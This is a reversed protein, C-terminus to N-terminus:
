SSFTRYKEPLKYQFYPLIHPAVLSFFKDSENPNFSIFYSKDESRTAGISQEIKGTLDFKRKLFKLIELNGEYGFGYTYIHSRKCRRSGDGMYWVALSYSDFISNILYDIPFIKTKNTYFDGYMNKLHENGMTRLYYCRYQKGNQHNNAIHEKLEFGPSMLSSLTEMKYEIFSKQKYSHNCQYMGWPTINGDGLLDGLLFKIQKESLKEHWRLKKMEEHCETVVGLEKIRRYLVMRSCGVIEAMEDYTKGEQQWKLADEKSVTFQRNKLANQNSKNQCSNTIGHFQRRRWVTVKSGIKYKQAIEKDTLKNEVYEKQLLDKTLFEYPDDIRFIKEDQM